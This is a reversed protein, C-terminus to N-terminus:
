REEVLSQYVTLLQELIVIKDFQSVLIKSVERANEYIDKDTMAQLILRTFEENDKAKLYPNKYLTRYEPLDRFLVPLGCAAAEMPALPCNEQYSPFLMLDAAVYVFPMQELDFMGAFRINAGECRSMCSNLHAIGETLVGFPRGGVWVFKANPIAQAIAIFDEVGKRPELQGVGLVVFAGDEINLMERGKQRKEPTSTWKEVPIPNCIREIRTKAGTELIAEEVRPSIALCVDAYSYVQKLYWKVIPMWYKWAPLSGKISDPIVHVTFVKKHRYRLGKLFYYPGYTHSHLIDGVGEKNVVVQVRGSSRLLATHDVFATHVGNGKACFATESIIHVKM